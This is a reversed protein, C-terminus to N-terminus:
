RSHMENFSCYKRVSRAMELLCLNPVCGLLGTEVLLRQPPRSLVFSVARPERKQVTVAQTDTDLRVRSSAHRLLTEPSLPKALGSLLARWPPPPSKDCIRLMRHLRRKKGRGSGRGDPGNRPRSREGLLLQYSASRPLRAPPRQRCLRRRHGGSRGGLKRPGHWEGEHLPPYPEAQSPAM